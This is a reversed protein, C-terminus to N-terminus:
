KKLRAVLSVSVVKDDEAVVRYYRKSLIYKAFKENSKGNRTFRALSRIKLFFVGATLRISYMGNEDTFNSSFIPKADNEPNAFAEVIMGSVPKKFQDLIRGSIISVPADQRGAFMDAQIKINGIKSTLGKKIEVRKVTGDKERSVYLWENIRGGTNRDPMRMVGYWYSGPLITAAFYGESNVPVGVDPLWDYRQPLQVPGINNSFFVVGVKTMPSGNANLIRGEVMGNDASAALLPATWILVFLLTICGILGLKNKM